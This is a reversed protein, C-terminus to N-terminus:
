RRANAVSPLEPDPRLKATMPYGEIERPEESARDVDGRVSEGRPSRLKMIAKGNGNGLDLIYDSM